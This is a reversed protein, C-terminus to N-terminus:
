FKYFIDPNDLDKRALDCCQYKEWIHSIEHLRSFTLFIDVVKKRDNLPTGLSIHVSKANMSWQFNIIGTQHRLLFLCELRCVYENDNFSM